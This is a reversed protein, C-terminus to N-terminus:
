RAVHISLARVYATLDSVVLVLALRQGRDEAEGGMRECSLIKIM